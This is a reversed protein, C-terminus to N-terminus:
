RLGGEIIFKDEMMLINRCLQVWAERKNVTVASECEATAHVVHHKEKEIVVINM